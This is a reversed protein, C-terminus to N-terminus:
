ITNRDVSNDQQGWSIGDVLVAEDNGDRILRTIYRSYGNENWGDHEIPWFYVQRWVGDTHKATTKFRKLLEMLDLRPPFGGVAVHIHYRQQKGANGHVVGVWALEALQAKTRGGGLIAKNFKHQFRRCVTQAGALTAYPSTLTLTIAHTFCHQHQQLWQRLEQKSQQQAQSM